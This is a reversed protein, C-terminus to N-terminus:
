ARIVNKILLKCSKNANKLLIVSTKPSARVAGGKISVSVKGEKLSKQSM